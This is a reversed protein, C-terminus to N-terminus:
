IVYAFYINNNYIKFYTTLLMKTVAAPRALGM